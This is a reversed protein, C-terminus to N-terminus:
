YCCTGDSTCIGVHGEGGPTMCICEMVCDRASGGNIAKLEKKTLKKKQIILKKM